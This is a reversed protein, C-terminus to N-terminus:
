SLFDQIKKSLKSNKVSIAVLSAQRAEALEIEARCLEIDKQIHSDAAVLKDATDQFVAFANESIALHKNVVNVKKSFM